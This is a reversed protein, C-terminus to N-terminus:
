LIPRATIVSNMHLVFYSTDASYLRLIIIKGKMIVTLQVYNHRSWIMSKTWKM